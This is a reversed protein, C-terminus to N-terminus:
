NFNSFLGFMLNFYIGNSVDWQSIDSNFKECGFLMDEFDYGNSVDWESVNGNFKVKGNFIYDFNTINSVNIINLDVNNGYKEILNNVLEKLEKNTKPFYEYKNGKFNYNLELLKKIKNLKNM